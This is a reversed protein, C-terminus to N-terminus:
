EQEEFSYGMKELAKKNKAAVKEGLEGGEQFTFKLETDKALTQYHKVQQEIIKKAVKKDLSSVWEASILNQGLHYKQEGGDLTFTIKTAIHIGHPRVMHGKIEHELEQPDAFPFIGSYMLKEKDALAALKQQFTADVQNWRDLNLQEKVWQNEGSAAIRLDKGLLKKLAKVADSFGKLEVGAGVFGLRTGENVQVGEDGCSIVYPM